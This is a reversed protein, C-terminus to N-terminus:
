EESRYVVAFVDVRMVVQATTEVPKRRSFLKAVLAAAALAAPLLLPLLSNSETRGAPVVSRPTKVRVIGPVPQTV